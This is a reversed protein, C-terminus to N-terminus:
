TAVIKVCFCGRNISAYSLNPYTIV